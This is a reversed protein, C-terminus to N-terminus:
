WITGLSGLMWRLVAHVRPSWVKLKLHVSKADTNVLEVSKEQWQEAASWTTCRKAYPLFDSVEVDTTGVLSSM